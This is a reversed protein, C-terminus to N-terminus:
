IAERNWIARMLTSKVVIYVQDVFTGIKRVADRIDNSRGRISEPKNYVWVYGATNWPDMTSFFDIGEEEKEKFFKVLKM